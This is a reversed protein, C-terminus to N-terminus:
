ILFLVHVPMTSVRVGSTVARQAHLAQQHSSDSWLAQGKRARSPIVDLFQGFSFVLNATVDNNFRGLSNPLQVLVQFQRFRPHALLCYCRRRAHRCAAVMARQHWGPCAGRIDKGTNSDLHIRCDCPNGLAVLERTPSISLGVADGIVPLHRARGFWDGENFDYYAIADRPHAYPLPSRPVAPPSAQTRRFNRLRGGCPAVM